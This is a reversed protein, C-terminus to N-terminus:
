SVFNFMDLIEKYLNQRKTLKNRCGIYSVAVTVLAPPLNLRESKLYDILQILSTYEQETALKEAADLNNVQDDSLSDRNVKFEQKVKITSNRNEVFQFFLKKFEESLVKEFNFVENFFESLYNNENEILDNETSVFPSLIDVDMLIDESKV